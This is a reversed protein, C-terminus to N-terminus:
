VLVEDKLEDVVDFDQSSGRSHCEMLLLCVHKKQQQKSLKNQM